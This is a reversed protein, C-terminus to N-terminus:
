QSPLGSGAHLAAGALLNGIPNLLLTQGRDPDLGAVSAIATGPSIPGSIPQRRRVPTWGMVPSFRERSRM